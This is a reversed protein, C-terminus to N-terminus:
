SPMECMSFCKQPGLDMSFFINKIIMDLPLVTRIACKYCCIVMFDINSTSQIIFFQAHHHITRQKCWSRTAKLLIRGLEILFPKRKRKTLKLVEMIKLQPAYSVTPPSYYYCYFVFQHLKISPSLSSLRTPWMGFGGFDCVPLRSSLLTVIFYAVHWTMYQYNTFRLDCYYWSRSVRVCLWASILSVM